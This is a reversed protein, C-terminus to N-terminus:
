AIPERYPDDDTASRKSSPEGAHYSESVPARVAKGEPSPAPPTAPAVPTSTPAVPISAATEKAEEALARRREAEAGSMEEAKAEPHELSRELESRIPQFVEKSIDGALASAVEDPVNVYKKIGAQLEEIPTVGLLTMMVENELAEWQDVHLKHTDALARLHKEVDTSTIAKQVPTPLQAFREKLIKQIDSGKPM